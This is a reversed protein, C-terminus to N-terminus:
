QDDRRAGELAQRFQESGHVPCDTRLVYYMEGECEWHGTGGANDIVPCTCGHEIAENSGPTGKPWIPDSM